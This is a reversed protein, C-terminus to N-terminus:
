PVLRRLADSVTAAGTRELQKRDLVQVNQAGDTIQGRKTSMKPIHTGTTLTITESASQNVPCCSGCQAPKKAPTTAAGAPKTQLLQRQRAAGKSVDALLSHSTLLLAVLVTWGASRGGPLPLIFKM